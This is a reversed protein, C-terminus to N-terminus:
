RRSKLPKLIGSARGILGRSPMPEAVIPRYFPKLFLPSHSTIDLAGVRAPLQVRILYCRDNPARWHSLCGRV